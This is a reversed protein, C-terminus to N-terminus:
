GYYGGEHYTELEDLLAHAKRVLEEIEIQKAKMCIIKEEIAERIEGESANMLGKIEKVAFGFQQFLKIHAIQKQAEADYLLHGYKNRDSSEVLGEKEYGQVARRTVGCLDCVEKLTKYNDM